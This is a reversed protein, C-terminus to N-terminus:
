HLYHLDTFRIQSEKQDGTQTVGFREKGPTIEGSESDSSFGRVLLAEIFILQQKCGKLSGM